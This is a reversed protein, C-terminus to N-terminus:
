FLPCGEGYLPFKHKSKLLDFWNEGAIARSQEGLKQIDIESQDRGYILNLWERAWGQLKYTTLAVQGPILKPQQEEPENFYIDFVIQTRDLKKVRLSTETSDIVLYVQAEEELFQLKILDYNTLKRLSEHDIYYKDFCPGDTYEVSYRLSSIAMKRAIGGSELILTVQFDYFPIMFGPARYSLGENMSGEGSYVIPITAYKMVLHIYNNDFFGKVFYGTHEDVTVRYVSYKGNGVNIVTPQEIDLGIHKASEKLGNINSTTLIIPKRSSNQIIMSKFILALSRNGVSVNILEESIEDHNYYPLQNVIQSNERAMMLGYRQNITSVIDDDMDEGTVERHIAKAFSTIREDEEPKRVAPMGYGIGGRTIGTFYANKVQSVGAMGGMEGVRLTNEDSATNYISGVNYQIEFRVTDSKPMVVQSVLYGYNPDWQRAANEHTIVKIDKDLLKDILNDSISYRYFCVYPCLRNKLGPNNSVLTRYLMQFNGLDGFGAIAYGWLLIKGRGKSARKWFKRIEMKNKESQKKGYSSSDLNNINYKEEFYDRDGVIQADKASLPFFKFIGKHTMMIKERKRLQIEKEVIALNAKNENAGIRTRKKFNDLKRIIEEDSMHSTIGIKEITKVYSTFDFIESLYERYRQLTYMSIFPEKKKEIQTRLYAKEHEGFHVLKLTTGSIQLRLGVLKRDLLSLFRFIESQIEDFSLSENSQKQILSFYAKYKQPDNIVANPLTYKPPAFNVINKHISNRIIDDEQDSSDIRFSFLCERVKDIAQKNVPIGNILHPSEEPKFKPIDLSEPHGFDYKISSVSFIREDDHSQKKITGKTSNEQYIPGSLPHQTRSCIVEVQTDLLRCITQSQIKQLYLIRTSEEPTQIPVWNTSAKQTLQYTMFMEQHKSKKAKSDELEKEKGDVQEDRYNKEEEVDEFNHQDSAQSQKETQEEGTNTQELNVKCKECIIVIEHNNSTNYRSQCSPCFVGIASLSWLGLAVDM